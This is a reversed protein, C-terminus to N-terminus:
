RALKKLIGFSLNYIDINERNCVLFSDNMLRNYHSIEEVNFSAEGTEFNVYESFNTDPHFNLKEQQILYAFFMRVDNENRIKKDFM